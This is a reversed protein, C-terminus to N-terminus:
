ALMLCVEWGNRLLLAAYSQKHIRYGCLHRMMAHLMFHQVKPSRMYLPLASGWLLM